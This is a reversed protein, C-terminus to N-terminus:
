AKEGTAPIPVGRCGRLWLRTHGEVRQEPSPPCVRKRSFPKPLGLESSLVYVTTSEIYLYKTGLAYTLFPTLDGFNIQVGTYVATENASVGCGKGGEERM